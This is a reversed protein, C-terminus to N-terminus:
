ERELDSPLLSLVVMDVRRGQEIRYARLVGERVFGATQAAQVMAGNDPDTLLELRALGCADFLWRAALPLARAAYGQGRAQPALWM